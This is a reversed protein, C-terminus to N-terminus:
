VTKRVIGTVTGICTYESPNKLEVENNAAVIPFLRIIGNTAVCKRIYVVSDKLYFATEGSLPLRKEVAVIDDPFYIPIMGDSVIKFGYDANKMYDSPIDIYEAHSMDFLAGNGLYATPSYYMFSRMHGSYIPQNSLENEILLLTLSKGHSDLSRWKRLLESEDLESPLRGILNDLTCSFADAISALVHISPNTNKGSRISKITDESVDSAEALESISFGRVKMLMKLRKGIEYKNEMYAERLFDTVISNLINYDM